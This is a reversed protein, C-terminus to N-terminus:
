AAHTLGHPARSEYRIDTASPAPGVQPVVEQATGWSDCFQHGFAECGSKRSEDHGPCLGRRERVQAIVIKVGDGGPDSTGFRVDNPDSEPRRTLVVQDRPYCTSNVDHRQWDAGGEVEDRTDNAFSWSAEMSGAEFPQIPECLLGAAQPPAVGDPIRSKKASGGSVPGQSPV